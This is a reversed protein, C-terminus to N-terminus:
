MKNIESEKYYLLYEYNISKLAFQQTAKFGKKTSIVLDAKEKIENLTLTLDYWELTKTNIGRGYIKRKDDSHYLEPIRM